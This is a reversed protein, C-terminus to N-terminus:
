PSWDMNVSNVIPATQGTPCNLYILYRIYRYNNVNTVPISANPGAAYYSGGGTPGIYSWPGALNNSPALQFSVSGGGVSGQWIIDNIASGLPSQTDIISSTLNASTGATCSLSTGSLVIGTSTSYTNTPSIIPGDQGSGGSWSSQTFAANPSRTLYENFQTVGGDPRTTVATIQQTSPDDTGGSTVVNGNTDRSVNSAYFYRTYVSSNYLQSIENASLARNYVRVDDISGPFYENNPSDYAIYATGVSSNRIQSQILNLGGDIYMSSTAGNSTWVIQHWNNDNVLTISSMGPSPLATNDYIFFKGGSVGFYLGSGRNSFVPRQLNTATKIWASVTTTTNIQVSGLNVSQNSGNFSLCGGVECSSSATWTPSNVLTGINGTGSYDFATTGEGEDFKWYGVLGAQIDNSLVSEQSSIAISYGLNSPSNYLQRIEDSSLARNYIRVDDMSGDLTYTPATIYLPYANAAPIVTQTSSARFMGDIYISFSSGDAVLNILHWTGTTLVSANSYDVENNTTGNGIFGKISNSAYSWISYNSTVVSGNAPGKEVLLESNKFSNWKVWASVTLNGAIDLSASDTSTVYNSSGNFTLCSNGVQCDVSTQWTPSNVLLGNNGNGSSDAATTGSGEDFKWYGVLGSSLSSSASSVIYYPSSTGHNLNYINHWDSNAYTKAKSLIDYDVLAATQGSRSEYNQRIVSVIAATAAIILIGGVAMAVLVETLLQGSESRIGSRITHRIGYVTSRILKQFFIRVM